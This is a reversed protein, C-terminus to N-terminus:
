EGFMDPGYHATHMNSGASKNQYKAFAARNWEAVIADFPDRHLFIVADYPPKQGKRTGESDQADDGRWRLLADHNKVVLLSTGWLSEGCFHTSRLTRDCWMSGTCIGTAKELLGRLWTNGSGPLSVLGIRKRGEGDMLRCSCQMQALASKHSVGMAHLYDLAQRLCLFMRQQDAPELSGACFGGFCPGTYRRHSAVSNPTGVTVSQIPNDSLQKKRFNLMQLNDSSKLVPPGQGVAAESSLTKMQEPVRQFVSGGTPPLRKVTRIDNVASRDGRPQVDLQHRSNPDVISNDLSLSASHLSRSSKYEAWHIDYGVVKKRSPYSKHTARHYPRASEGTFTVVGLYYSTVLILVLLSVTTQIVRRRMLMNM